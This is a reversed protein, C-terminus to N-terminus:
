GEAEGEEAFESKKLPRLVLSPCEGAGLPTTGVM